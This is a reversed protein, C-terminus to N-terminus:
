AFVDLAVSTMLSDPVLTYSIQLNTNWNPPECARFTACGQKMARVAEHLKVSVPFVFRRQVEHLVKSIRAHGMYEHYEKLVMDVKSEPVCVRGEWVM